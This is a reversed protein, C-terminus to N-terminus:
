TSAEEVAAFAQQWGPFKNDLIELGTPILQPPLCLFSFFQCHLSGLFLQRSPYM